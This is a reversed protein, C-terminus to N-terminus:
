RVIGFSLASPPPTTPMCCRPGADAQHCASTRPTWVGCSPMAAEQHRYRRRPSRGRSFLRRSRARCRTSDIAGRISRMPGCPEGPPRSTCATTGSRAPRSSPFDVRFARLANGDGLGGMSDGNLLYLTGDKGGGVILHRLPGSPLNIVLAAGGAGFDDDNADETAQDSPTFWSSVGLAANLQLFSDGYDNHPSGTNTVDFLGNGTTVYVSGNSDVAPAGGSMWIGAGGHPPAHNPATNFVGAATFTVGTYHYGM